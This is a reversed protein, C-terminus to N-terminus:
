YRGAVPVGQQSSGAQSAPHRVRLLLCCPKATTPPTDMWAAAVSHTSFALDM